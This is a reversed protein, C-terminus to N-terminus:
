AAARFGALGPLIARAFCRCNPLQGPQIFEKVDPDFWGKAVDYIVGERGAKVHSPRPTKGGASHRWIAQEVGLELYRAREIVAFAKRNQDQAIFAARRRTVGYQHQLKQALPGLDGGVQVARMVDGEIQTFHQAPISKILAVNEAMSAEVINRIRPTLAFKITFGAKRLAARLQTDTRDAAATAFYRALDPALRAFGDEWKRRLQRIAEALNESPTADAAMAITQIMWARKVTEAIDAQMAKIWDDLRRQYARELGVNARVPALTKSKAGSKM